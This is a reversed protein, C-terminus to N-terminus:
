LRSNAVQSANLYLLQPMIFSMILSWDATGGIQLLLCFAGICLTFLLLQPQPQVRQHVLAYVSEVDDNVTGTLVCVANIEALTAAYRRCALPLILYNVVLMWAMVAYVLWYVPECLLVIVTVINLVTLSTSTWKYLDNMSHKVGAVRALEHEM